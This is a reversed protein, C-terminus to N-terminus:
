TRGSLFIARWRGPPPFLCLLCKKWSSQVPFLGFCFRREDASECLNAEQKQKAAITPPVTDGWDVIQYAPMAESFFACQMCVYMICFPQM